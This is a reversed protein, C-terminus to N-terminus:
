LTAVPGSGPAASAYGLISFVLAISLRQVYAFRIFLRPYNAGARRM